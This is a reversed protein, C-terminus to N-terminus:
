TRAHGGQRCYTKRPESGAEHHESRQGRFDRDMGVHHVDNRLGITGVDTEM